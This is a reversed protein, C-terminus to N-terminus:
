YSASWKEMLDSGGKKLCSAELRDRGGKMLDCSLIRTSKILELMLQHESAPPLDYAHHVQM